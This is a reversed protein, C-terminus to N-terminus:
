PNVGMAQLGAAFRDALRDLERYPIRRGLYWLATRHPSRQAAIRLLRDLPQDPVAVTAPVGEEYHSLWPKGTSAGNGRAAKRWGQETGLFREVSRVVADSRDLIVMHYSQPVEVHESGPIEQAVRHLDQKSFLYDRSGHIVMTPM